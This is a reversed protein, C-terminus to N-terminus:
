GATAPPLTFLAPDVDVTRVLGLERLIQEDQPKLMYEHRYLKRLARERQKPRSMATAALYRETQQVRLRTMNDGYVARNEWKRQWDAFTGADYHLIRLDTAAVSTFRGSAMASPTPGHIRMNKITGFRVLSKGRRHGRLINGGQFPARVGREKAQPYLDTLHEKFVHIDRFPDTMDLDAPVAELPPMQVHDVGTRCERELATRLNGPAWILEDSDIHALWDIALDKRGLLYRLMVHQKHPVVVPVELDMDAVLDIWFQDDCRYCTIAPQGSLLDIAPDNPDDFFIHMEDIGSNLHYAAWEALMHPPAKVMSATAFRM